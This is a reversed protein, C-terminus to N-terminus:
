LEADPFNYYRHVLTETGSGGPVYRGRGYLFVQRRLEAMSLAVAESIGLEKRYKLEDLVAGALEELREQTLEPVRRPNMM